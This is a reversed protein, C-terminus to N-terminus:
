TPLINCTQKNIEIVINDGMLPVERYRGNIICRSLDVIDRAIIGDRVVLLLRPGDTNSRSRSKALKYVSQPSNDCFWSVLADTSDYWAFCEFSVSSIQRNDSAVVYM